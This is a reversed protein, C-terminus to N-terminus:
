ADHGKQVTSPASVWWRIVLPWLSILGPLILLRVFLSTGRTAPDFRHLALAAFALAIALGVLAYIAAGILLWQIM